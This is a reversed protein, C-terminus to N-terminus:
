ANNFSMPFFIDLIVPTTRQYRVPLKLLGSPFKLGQIEISNV